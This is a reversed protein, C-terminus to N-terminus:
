GGSLSCTLSLHHPCCGLRSSLRPPEQVMDASMGTHTRWVRAHALTGAPGQHTNPLVAPSTHDVRSARKDLQCPPLRGQPQLLPRPGLPGKGLLGLSAAPLDGQRSGSSSAQLSAPVRGRSGSKVM